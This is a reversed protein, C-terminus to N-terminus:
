SILKSHGYRKALISAWLIGKVYLPEYLKTGNVLNFLGLFKKREMIQKLSDHTVWFCYCFSFMVDM